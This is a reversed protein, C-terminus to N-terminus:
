SGGHNGDASGYSEDRNHSENCQTDHTNARQNRMRTGSMDHGPTLMPVSMVLGDAIMAHLVIGIRAMVIRAIRKGFPIATDPLHCRSRVVRSDSRWDWM